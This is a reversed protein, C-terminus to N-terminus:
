SKAEKMTSEAVCHNIPIPCEIYVIICYFINTNNTNTKTKTKTKM